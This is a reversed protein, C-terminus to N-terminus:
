ALQQEFKAQVDVNKQQFEVNKKQADEYKQQVDEYKQQIDEYQERQTEVLKKLNEIEVKTEANNDEYQERHMECSGKSSRICKGYSGFGYLRKKRDHGGVVDYFLKDEDIEEGIAELRDCQEMFDDYLKIIINLYFHIKKAKDVLFTVGDHNKTHTYLFLEHHAPDHGWLKKHFEDWYLLKTEDSLTAWSYGNLDAREGFSEYIISSCPGSPFLEKDRVEIYLRGDLGTSGLLYGQHQIGINEEVSESGNTTSRPISSTTSAPTSSQVSTSVSSQNSSTPLSSQTSSEHTSSTAGMTGVHSVFTPTSVTGVSSLTTNSSSSINGVFKADDTRKNIFHVNTHQKRKLTERLLFQSMKGPNHQIPNSQLSTSHIPVKYSMESNQYNFQLTHNKIESIKIQEPNIESLWPFILIMGVLLKPQQANAIM